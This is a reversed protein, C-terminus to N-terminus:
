LDRSATSISDRLDRIHSILPCVCSWCVRLYLSLLAEFIVRSKEYKKLKIPQGQREHQLLTGIVPIQPHIYTYVYICMIRIHTHTRAHLIASHERSLPIRSCIYIYMYVYIYMYMCVYLYVCVCMCAHTCVCWVFVCVCVCVCM